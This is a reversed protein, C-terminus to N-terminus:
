AFTRVINSLSTFLFEMLRKKSDEDTRECSENSFPGWPGNLGSAGTKASVQFCYSTYFELIEVVGSTNTFESSNKWSISLCDELRYRILYSMIMGNPITPPLWEVIVKTSSVAETTINRPADEPVIVVM